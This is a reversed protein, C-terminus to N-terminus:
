TVFVGSDKMKTLEMTMGKLNIWKMSLWTTKNNNAIRTEHTGTKSSFIPQLELPQIASVVGV